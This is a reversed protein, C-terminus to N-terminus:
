LVRQAVVVTYSDTDYTTGTEIFRNKHWFHEAQPNGKVWGLRLSSVGIHYLAACLEDIITSGIGNNQVSTDTMFFGIFATSEDPYAMILDMVAILKDGEYYGVYYKDFFDKNPPLASMDDIISQTSVFPPCHQYYLSNNCCLEYVKAVDSYDIRRVLYKDSLLSVNM